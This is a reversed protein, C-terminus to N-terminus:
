TGLREVQRRAEPARESDPHERVIREFIERAASRYQDGGSKAGLELLAMGQRYLADPVKGENPYKKVVDEFALVAREYDAVKFYCEGLWFAANDASASSPYTQLFSRFRDIAVPYDGARYLRFAEEYAKVERGPDGPGGSGGPRSIAGASGSAAMGPGGDTPGGPGSGPGDEYSGGGAPPPPPPVSSGQRLQAIAYEIEEMSGRLQGMQEQLEELQSGLEALRQQQDTPGATRRDLISIKKELERVEAVSACGPGGGISLVLVWGLASRLKMVMM